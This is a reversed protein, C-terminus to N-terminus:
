ILLLPMELRKELCIVQSVATFAWNWILLFLINVAWQSFPLTSSWLPLTIWYIISGLFIHQVANSSFLPSDSSVSPSLLSRVQRDRVLPTVSGVGMVSTSSGRYLQSVIDAELRAPDLFTVEAPTPSSSNSALLALSDDNAAEKAVGVIKTSGEVNAAKNLVEAIRRIYVRNQQPQQTRGFNEVNRLSLM